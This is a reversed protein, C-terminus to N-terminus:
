EGLFEFNEEMPDIVKATVTLILVVDHIREDTDMPSLLRDTTVSVDTILRDDSLLCFFPDQGDKPEFAGMSGRDPVKLSDFLVKIRNDLDGGNEVLGGPSDRRLFLIDLKCALGNEKTILPLFRFSGEKYRNAIKNSESNSGDPTMTGGTFMEGVRADNPVFRYKLMRALHWREKWLTQLQPHIQSRIANKDRALSGSSGGSKQAPLCGKNVLRFQLLEGKDEDPWRWFSFV